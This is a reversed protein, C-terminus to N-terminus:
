SSFDHLDRYRDIKEGKKIPCFDELLTSILIIDATYSYRYCSSRHSKRVPLFYITSKRTTTWKLIKWTILIECELVFVMDGLSTQWLLVQKRGM